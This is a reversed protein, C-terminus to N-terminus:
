ELNMETVYHFMEEVGRGRKQKNIMSIKQKVLKKKKKKKLRPLKM